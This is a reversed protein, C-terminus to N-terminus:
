LKVLGHDTYEYIPTDGDVIYDGDVRWGKCKEFFKCWTERPILGHFTMERLMNWTDDSVNYKLYLDVMKKLTM